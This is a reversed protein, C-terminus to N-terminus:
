NKSLRHRTLLTLLRFEFFTMETAGLDLGRTLLASHGSLKKPKKAGELSCIKDMDIMRWQSSRGPHTVKRETHPTYQNCGKAGYRYMRRKAGTDGLELWLVDWFKQFAWTITAWLTLEAAGDDSQKSGRFRHLKSQCFGHICEVADSSLPVFIACDFLFHKLQRIRVRVEDAALDEPIFSLIPQSFELDCCDVCDAMM